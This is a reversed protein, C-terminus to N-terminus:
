LVLINIKDFKFINNFAVVIYIVKILFIILFVLNLNQSLKETM